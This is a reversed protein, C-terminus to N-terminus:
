FMAITGWIFSTLNLPTDCAWNVMYPQNTLGEISWNIKKKSHWMACWWCCRLTTQHGGNPSFTGAICLLCLTCWSCWIACIHNLKCHHSSGTILTCLFRPLRWPECNLITTSQTRVTSGTDINAFDPYLIVVLTMLATDLTSCLLLLLINFISNFLCLLHTPDTL